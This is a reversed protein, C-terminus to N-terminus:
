DWLFHSVGRERRPAALVELCFIYVARPSVSCQLSCAFSCLVQPSLTIFEKRCIGSLSSFFGVLLFYPLTHTHSLSVCVSVSLSVLGARQLWLSLFLLRLLCGLVVPFTAWM